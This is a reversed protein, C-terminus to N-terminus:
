TTTPSSPHHPHLTACCFPPHKPLSPPLTLSAEGAAGAAPGATQPSPVGQGGQLMLWSGGSSRGSSCGAGVWGGAGVLYYLTQQSRLNQILISLTQLVQQAVHGRRNARQQLITTFHGLLGETLFYEVM